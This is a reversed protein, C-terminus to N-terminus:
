ALSSLAVTALLHALAHAIMAAELGDRVFLAGFLIGPVANGVIVAAVMETSAGPAVLFLMPLHGLAFLLAAAVIAVATVTGPLRQPRGALRWGAWAFASVLGWRTLLEETIRGYLLKPLLPLDFSVLRSQAGAGAVIRPAITLGYALLIAAVVVGVISAPRVQRKLVAVPSGSSIWAEVAPARFGVRRNAAEGIAVAALTLVTPNVIALLRFALPSMPRPSLLELPVLLLSATGVLELGLLVQWRQRPRM